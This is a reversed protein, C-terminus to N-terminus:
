FFFSIYQDCVSHFYATTPRVPKNKFTSLPAAVLSTEQVSELPGVILLCTQWFSAQKVILKGLGLSGMQSTLQKSSFLKSNAWGLVLCLSGWLWLHGLNGWWECGFPCGWTLEGQIAQSIRRPHTLMWVKYSQTFMRRVDGPACVVWADESYGHVARGYSVCTGRTSLGSALRWQNRRTVSM